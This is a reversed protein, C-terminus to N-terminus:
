NNSLEHSVLKYTQNEKNYTFNLPNKTRSPNKLVNMAANANKADFGTRKMIEQRTWSRKDVFMARIISMKSMKRDKKKPLLKRIRAVAKAKSEFKKIKKGETLSNYLVALEKITMKELDM